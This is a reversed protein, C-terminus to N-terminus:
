GAIGTVESLKRPIPKILHITSDDTSSVVQKFNHNMLGGAAMWFFQGQSSWRPTSPGTFEPTASILGKAQSRSLEGSGCGAIFLAVGSIVASSYIMRKM